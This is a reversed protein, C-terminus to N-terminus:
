IYWYNTLNIFYSVINQSLVLMCHFVFSIVLTDIDEKAEDLIFFLVVCVLQTHMDVSMSVHMNVNVIINM